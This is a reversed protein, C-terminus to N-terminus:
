PLGEASTSNGDCSATTIARFDRVTAAASATSTLRFARSHSAAAPTPCTYKLYQEGKSEVGLPLMPGTMSASAAAVPAVETIVVGLEGSCRRVTYAPCNNTSPIGSASDWM